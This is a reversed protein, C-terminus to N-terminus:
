EGRTDDSSPLEFPLEKCNFGGAGEHGGGGYKICIPEVDIGDRGSYLSVLWQGPMRGFTIALDHRAPDIVAELPAQGRDATNIVIAKHGEFELEFSRKMALNQYHFYLFRWIPRGEEIIRSIIARSMSDDRFLREWFNQEDPAIESGRSRMGYEFPITDPDEHDWVDYRGLLRVAEPMDQRPYLFEWTLECGSNGIRRLGEPDFDAKDADRLSQKHHDIWILRGNPSLHQELREMDGFPQLSFDVMWVDDEASIIDWPFADGYQIGYMKMDPYARKVIAGSCYGDNDLHYFCIM